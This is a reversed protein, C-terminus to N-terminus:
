VNGNKKQYAVVIMSKEYIITANGTIDITIGIKIGATGGYFKEDNQEYNDFDFLNM